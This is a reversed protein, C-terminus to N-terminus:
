EDRPERCILLQQKGGIRGSGIADILLRYESEAAPMTFEITLTGDSEIPSLPRWFISDPLAEGGLYGSASRALRAREALSKKEAPKGGGIGLGRAAATAQPKDAVDNRLLGPLPAGSPREALQGEKKDTDRSKSKEEIAQLNKRQEILNERLAGAVAKAEPLALGGGGSGQGSTSNRDNLQPPSLEKLAEGPTQPLAGAISTNPEAPPTPADIVPAMAEMPFARALQRGAPQPPLFWAIGLALSVAAIGVAPMWVSKRLPQRAILLLGVLLMLGAASWMLIRGFARVQDLRNVQNEAVANDYERQVSLRNDTLVVDASDSDFAALEGDGSALSEGTENRDLQRSTVPTATAAASEANPKAPALGGAIPGAPLAEAPANSALTQPTAQQKAADRKAVDKLARYDTPLAAALANAAPAGAVQDEAASFAEALSLPVRTARVAVENWVRVGVAATAPHGQEDLVHLKLKVQEGPAYSKKLGEVAVQLERASAHLLQQRYVPTKADAKLYLEVDVLGEVEPPLDLPTQESEQFSAIERRAVIVDGHRAVLVLAEGRLEAPVNLETSKRMPLAEALQREAVDAPAVRPINENLSRNSGPKKAAQKDAAFATAEPPAPAPAAPLAPAGPATGGFAAAPGGEGPQRKQDLGGSLEGAKALGGKGAANAGRGIGDSGPAVAAGNAQRLTSGRDLELARRETQVLSKRSAAQLDASTKAETKGARDAALKEVGAAQEQKFGAVERRRLALGDVAANRPIEFEGSIVGNTADATWMPQVVDVGSKNEVMLEDTAPLNIKKSYEGVGFMSFRVKEGPEAFPKELLMVTREKEAAIQLEASVVSGSHEREAREDAPLVQLRAGRRLLDGPLQVEARGDRATSLNKRFTERGEADVLRVALEASLGKNDVDNTQIEVKQSLGETMTAPVSVQTFYYESKAVTQTMMEPQMLGYGLLLLLATTGGIALWNTSWGSSVSSRAPKTRRSAPLRAHKDAKTVSKETRTSISLSSDEVRAAVGVLDAQLRVESYLRAIAPDSKVQACLAAEAEPELLGYSLEWLQQRLEDNTQANSNKSNTNM